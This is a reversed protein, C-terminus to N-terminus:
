KDEDFYIHDFDTSVLKDFSPLVLVIPQVQSAAWVNRERQVNQLVGCATCVREMIWVLKSRSKWEGVHEGTPSAPCPTM